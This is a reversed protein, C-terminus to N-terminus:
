GKGCTWGQGRARWAGKGRAKVRVKVKLGGWVGRWPAVMLMPTAESTGRSARPKRRWICAGAPVGRSCFAPACSPALSSVASSKSLKSSARGRPGGAFLQYQPAGHRGGAGHWGGLAAVGRAREARWVGRRPRRRADPLHPQFQARYRGYKGRGVPAVRLGGDARGAEARRM